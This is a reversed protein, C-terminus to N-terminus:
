HRGELAALERQLRPRLVFWTRLALLVTLGVVAVRLAVSGAFARPFAVATWTMYLPVFISLFRLSRLRRQYQGRLVEFLEPGPLMRAARRAALWVGGGFVLLVLGIGAVLGLGYPDLTAGALQGRGLVIAAGVVVAGAAGKVLDRRRARQAREIRAQLDDWGATPEADPPSWSVGALDEREASCRVCGALHEELARREDPALEGQREKELAISWRECPDKM